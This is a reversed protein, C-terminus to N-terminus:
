FNLALSADYVENRGQQAHHSQAQTLLATMETSHSSFLICQAPPAHPLSMTCAIDSSIYTHM